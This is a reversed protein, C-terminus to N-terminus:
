GPIARNPPVDIFSRDTTTSLAMAPAASLV